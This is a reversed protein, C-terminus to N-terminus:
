LMEEHAHLTADIVPGEGRARRRATLASRRTAPRHLATAPTPASHRPASTSHRPASTSHRPASTGHRPAPTSHRPAPHATARRPHSAVVGHREDGRSGGRARADARGGTLPPGGRGGHPHARGAGRGAIEGSAGRARAFDLSLRRSLDVQLGLCADVGFVLAVRESRGRVGHVPSACSRDRRLPSLSLEAAGLGGFLAGVAFDPVSYDSAVHHRAGPHGRGRPRPSEGLWVDRRALRRPRQPRGRPGSRRSRPRLAGRVREGLPLHRRPSRDGAARVRGGTRAAVAGM